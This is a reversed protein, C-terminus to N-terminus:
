LNEFMIVDELHGESWKWWGFEDINAIGYEALKETLVDGKNYKLFDKDFEKLEYTDYFYRIIYEDYYLDIAKGEADVAFDMFNINKSEFYTDYFDAMEDMNIKRLLDGTEEALVPYVDYLYYGIGGERMANDFAYLVYMTYQYENLENIYKIPSEDNTNADSIAYMATDYLEMCLDHDTTESLVFEKAKELQEPTYEQTVVMGMCIFILWVLLVGIFAKGPFREVYELAKARLLDM